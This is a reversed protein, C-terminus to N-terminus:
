QALFALKFGPGPEELLTLQIFDVDNSGMNERIETSIMTMKTPM